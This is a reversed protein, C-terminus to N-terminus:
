KFDVVLNTVQKAANRNTCVYYATWNSVWLVCGSGLGGGIINLQAQIGAYSNSVTSTSAGMVGGGVAAARNTAMLNGFISVVNSVAAINNEGPATLWLATNGIIFGGASDMYFRLDGGTINKGMLIGGPGNIYRTGGNATAWLDPPVTQGDMYMATVGDATPKWRLSAPNPFDKSFNFAVESAYNTVANALSSVIYMDSNTKGVALTVQNTMFIVGGRWPERLLYTVNSFGGFDMVNLFINSSAAIGANDNVLLLANSYGATVGLPHGLPTNWVEVLNNSRVLSAPLQEKDRWVANVLSNTLVTAETKGYLDATGGNPYAGTRDGAGMRWHQHTMAKVNALNTLMWLATADAGLASNYIGISGEPQHGPGWFTKMNMAQRGVAFSNAPTPTTDTGYAFTINNVGYIIDPYFHAPNVQNAFPNQQIFFPRCIGGTNAVACHYDIVAQNAIRLWERLYEPHTVYFGTPDCEDVGTGDVGWSMMKQIDRRVTALPTGPLLACTNSYFSTYLWFKMGNTHAFNAWYPIGTTAGGWVNTNWALDGNSDRVYWEWGDDIQITDVLGGMLLNTSNWLITNTYWKLINTGFDNTADLAAAWIFFSNISFTPTRSAQWIYGNPPPNTSFSLDGLNTVGGGDGTLNAVITNTWKVRDGTKVLIANDAAAPNTAINPPANSTHAISGYFGFVGTDDDIVIKRTGIIDGGTNVLDGDLEVNGASVLNAVQVQGDFNATSPYDPYFASSSITVLTNVLNTALSIPGTGAKMSVGGSNTAGAGGLAAITNTVWNQFGTAGAANSYAMTGSNIVNAVLINTQASSLVDNTRYLYYFSMAHIDGLYTVVSVTGTLQAPFGCTRVTSGFPTDFTLRYAYGSVVNSFTTSGTSSTVQSRPIPALLTTGGYDGFPVLPLLTTRRVQQYTLLFDAYTVQVNVKNTGELGFAPVGLLLCLFALLKKM